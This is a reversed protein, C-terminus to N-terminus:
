TSFDLQFKQHIFVKVGKIKSEYLLEKVGEKAIEFETTPAITIRYIADDPFTVELFPVVLGQKACFDYQLKKNYIGFYHEAGIDKRPIRKDAIELIIRFEEESKFKPHKYFKGLSDIYNRLRIQAYSLDLETVGQGDNQHFTIDKEIREALCKIEAYHEKPTYLVKGYHVTFSDITNEKPTDFAKLLNSIRFGINYGQYNSNNVYYNWMNLSDAETCTCFVFVREKVYPLKPIEAFEINSTELNKIKRLDNGKLLRNVVENFYPYNGKNEDMFDLLLKVFYVGETKDNLYRIDTFRIKNNKVISLFAEPSTYHYVIDSEITPSKEEKPVFSKIQFSNFTYKEESRM